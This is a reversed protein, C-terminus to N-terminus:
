LRVPPNCGVGRECSLLNGQADLVEKLDYNEEGYRYMAAIGSSKRLARAEGRKRWDSLTYRTRPTSGLMEWTPARMSEVALDWGEPVEIHMPKEAERKDFHAQLYAIAAPLDRFAHLAAVHEPTAVIYVFGEHEYRIATPNWYFPLPLQEPACSCFM